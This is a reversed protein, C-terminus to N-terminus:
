KQHALRGGFGAGCSFVYGHYKEVFLSHERGAAIEKIKVDTLM